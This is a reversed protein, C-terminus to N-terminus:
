KILRLLRTTNGIQRTAALVPGLRTSHDDLTLGVGRLCDTLALHVPLGAQRAISGAREFLRRQAEREGDQYLGRPVHGGGEMVVALLESEGARTLLRRALEIRELLMSLPRGGPGRRDGALVGQVDAMATRRRAEELASDRQRRAERLQGLSFITSALLVLVGRCVRM